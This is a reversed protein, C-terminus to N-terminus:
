KPHQSFVGTLDDELNRHHPALRYVAVLAIFIIIMIVAILIMKKVVSKESKNKNGPTM